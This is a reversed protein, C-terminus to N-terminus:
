IVENDSDSICIIKNDTNSVVELSTESDIDSGTDSLVELGNMFECEFKWLADPLLDVGNKCFDNKDALFAIVIQIYLFSKM